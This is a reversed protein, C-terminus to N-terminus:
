ELCVRFGLDQSRYGPIYGDRHTVRCIDASDLWSGNRIIRWEGTTARTSDARPNFSLRDCRDNCWEKVNGAMDYLGYGNAAFSGVAATYPYHGDNWAPHYTNATYSSADFSYRSGNARYNAHDHDITDGWPFRNGALGGRAAYEWQAETPLHYGNKTLDCAWTTLDYCPEKGLCESRWNCYAAAGYWTVTIMPHYGMSMGKSRVHFRDNWCSIQSFTGSAKTECYPYRNNSDSAAYVIGKVLKMQAPYKANLFACYEENTTEHRSIHFTTLRVTQVPKSSRGDVSAGMQFIGGPIMVMEDEAAIPLDKINESKKCGSIALAFVSTLARM